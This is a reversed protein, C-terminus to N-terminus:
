RTCERYMMVDGHFCGSLLWLRDSEIKTEGSWLISQQLGALIQRAQTLNLLDQRAIEQGMPYHIEGISCYFHGRSCYSM